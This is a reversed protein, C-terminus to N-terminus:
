RELSFSSLWKPRAVAKLNKAPLACLPRGYHALAVATLWAADAEDDNTVHLHKGLRGRAALVMDQKSARGNGTAYVKLTSPHVDVRPVKRVHLGYHVVGRLEALDMATQIADEGPTIRGEMVVLTPGDVMSLVRNIINHHRHEPEDGSRTVITTVFFRGDRWTVMGTSALSLDLGIITTM